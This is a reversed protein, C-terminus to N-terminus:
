PALRLGQQAPVDELLSFDRRVAAPSEGRQEIAQARITGLRGDAKALHGVRAPDIGM